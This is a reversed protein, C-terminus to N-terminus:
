ALTFCGMLSWKSYPKSIMKASLCWQKHHGFLRHLGGRPADIANFIPLFSYSTFFNYGRSTLPNKKCFLNWNFLEYGIESGRLFDKFIIVKNGESNCYSKYLKIHRNWLPKFREIQFFLILFNHVSSTPPTL